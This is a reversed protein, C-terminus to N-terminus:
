VVSKRDRSQDGPRIVVPTDAGMAFAPKSQPVIDHRDIRLLTDGPKIGARDAPGGPAVDQFVWRHGDTPTDVARFSAAIANRSSIKSTERLLGLAGSGLEKLMKNAAMDFEDLDDAHLVTTRHREVIAGWNNGGFDPDYYKDAVLKEIQALCRERETRTM